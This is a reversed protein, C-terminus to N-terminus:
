MKQPAIVDVWCLEGNARTDRAIAGVINGSAGTVGNGSADSTLRDGATCGGAGIKLLCRSGEAYIKLMEGQVAAYQTGTLQPIPAADTSEQSVGFLVDTVAGAQIFNFPTTSDLKVFSYPLINGNAIGSTVKGQAM